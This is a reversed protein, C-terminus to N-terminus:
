GNGFNTTMTQVKPQHLLNTNKRVTKRTSLSASDFGPLSFMFSPPLNKLKLLPQKEIENLKASAYVDDQDKELNGNKNVPLLKDKLGVM